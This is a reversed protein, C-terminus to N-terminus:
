LLTFCHFLSGVLWGVLWCRERTWSRIRASWSIKTDVVRVHGFLLLLSLATPALLDKYMIFGRRLM